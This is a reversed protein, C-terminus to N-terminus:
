GAITGPELVDLRGGPTRYKDKLTQNEERLTRNEETLRQNEHSLIHNQGTLRQNERILEDIIVTIGELELVLM